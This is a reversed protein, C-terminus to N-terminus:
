NSGYAGMGDRLRGYICRVTGHCNKLKNYPVPVPIGTFRIVGMHICSYVMYPVTSVGLPYAAAYLSQLPVLIRGHHTARDIDRDVTTM